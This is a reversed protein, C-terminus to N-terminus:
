VCWLSHSIICWFPRKEWFHSRSSKSPWSRSIETATSKFIVQSRV